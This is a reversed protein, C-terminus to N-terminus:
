PRKPHPSKTVGYAHGKGTHAATSSASGHTTSRPRPASTPLGAPTSPATVAARGTPSPRATGHGSEAGGKPPLAGRSSPKGVPWPTLPAGSGIVLGFAVIALYAVLVCAVAIGANRALRRRRGTGDVFVPDPEFVKTAETM